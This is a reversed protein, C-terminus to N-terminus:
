LRCTAQRLSVLSLMRVVHLNMYRSRSSDKLNYLKSYFNHFQEVIAESTVHKKDKGDKIHVIHHMVMREWGQKYYMKSRFFLEKNSHAELFTLLELRADRLRM